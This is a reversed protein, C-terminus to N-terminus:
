GIIKNAQVWQCCDQKDGSKPSANGHIYHLTSCCNSEYHRENEILVSGYFLYWMSPAVTALYYKKGGREKYRWLCKTVVDSSLFVSVSWTINALNNLVRGYKKVNRSGGTKKCKRRLEVATGSVIKCVINGRWSGVYILLMRYCFLIFNLIKAVKLDLGKKKIQDRRPQTIVSLDRVVTRFPTTKRSLGQMSLHVTSLYAMKCLLATAWHRYFPMAAYRIPCKLILAPMRQTTRLPLLVAGTRSTTIENWECKWTRVTHWVVSRVNIAM